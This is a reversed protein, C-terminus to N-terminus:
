GRAHEDPPRAPELVEPARVRELGRHGLQVRGLRRHLTRVGGDLDVAAGAVDVIVRHLAIEAVHAHGREVLAGRLDLLQDDAPRHGADVRQDGGLRAAPVRAIALFSPTESSSLAPSAPRAPLAALTIPTSPAPVIPAPM